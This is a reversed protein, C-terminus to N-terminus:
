AKKASLVFIQSSHGRGQKKAQFNSWFGWIVSKFYNNKGRRYKESLMSVYFADLKQPITKRIEFGHNAALNKLTDGTFHYLHRPVDYAAWFKGYKGADWSNCNPVAVIFVGDSALLGKVMELTENLDHVHELVHWMSICNYSHGNGTLETLEKFVSIENVLSAFERAKGNPEIGTSELGNSKCYKLFEGTGCGIDLIRGSHIYEKVTSYKKRISFLRAIKYVRSILSSSKSDHSIYEDSQYYRGIDAIDPRPNVFKFGCADCKQISFGEGSLFYDQVELFITFGTKECVPCKLITEAM